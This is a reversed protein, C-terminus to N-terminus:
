KQRKVEIPKDAAGEGVTLGKEGGRVAPPIVAKQQGGSAPGSSPAGPIPASTGSTATASQAAAASCAAAVLLLAIFVRTM